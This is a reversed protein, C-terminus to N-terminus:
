ESLYFYGAEAMLASEALAGEEAMTLTVDRQNERGFPRAGLPFSYLEMREVAMAELLQANLRVTGFVVKRWPKKAGVQARDSPARMPESLMRRRLPGVLEGCAEACKIGAGKTVRKGRGGKSEFLAEVVFHSPPLIKSLYLGIEFLNPFVLKEGKWTKLRYGAQVQSYVAWAIVKRPSRCVAV